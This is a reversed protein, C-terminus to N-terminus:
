VRWIIGEKRTSKHAEAAPALLNLPKRDIDLVEPTAIADLEVTSPSEEHRVLMSREVERTVLKGDAAQFEKKQEERTRHLAVLGLEWVRDPSLHLGKHQLYSDLEQFTKRDRGEKKAQD